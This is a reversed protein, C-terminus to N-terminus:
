AESGTQHPAPAAAGRLENLVLLRMHRIAARYNFEPFMMSRFLTGDLFTSIFLAMQKPKTAPRFVGQALGDKIAQGLVVSEKDYFQRIAEDLSATRTRTSAYDLSVKALKQMLVFQTIHIEIWASIVEEPSGRGDRTSLAEFKGFADAVTMEIARLFLEEKNDFYYYILSPNCGTQQAIDKITVTSYDLRAFLDLAAHLLTEAAPPAPRTSVRAGGAPADTM